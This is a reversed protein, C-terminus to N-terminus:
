RLLADADLASYDLCYFDKYGRVAHCSGLVYDYDHEALWKEAEDVFQHAQGLEVGALLKVGTKNNRKAERLREFAGADGAGSMHGRDGSLHVDMDLHDTLALIETIPEAAAVMEEPSAAGDSIVTHAHTDFPIKM